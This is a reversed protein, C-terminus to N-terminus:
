KDPYVVGANMIKWENFQDRFVWATMIRRVHIPDNYFATHTFDIKAHTLM